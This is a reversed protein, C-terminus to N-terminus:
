ADFKMLFIDVGEHKQRHPIYFGKLLAHSCSKINCTMKYNILLLPLLLNLPGKGMETAVKPLSPPFLDQSQLSYGGKNKSIHLNSSIISTNSIVYLISSISTLTITLKLFLGSLKFCLNNECLLYCIIYLNTVSVVQIDQTLGIFDVKSCEKWALSFFTSNVCIKAFRSVLNNGM